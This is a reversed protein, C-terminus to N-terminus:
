SRGRQCSPSCLCFSPSAFSHSYIQLQETGHRFIVHGEELLVREGAVLSGGLFWLNLTLYKVFAINPQEEEHKNQTQPCLVNTRSGCLCTPLTLLESVGERSERSNYEEERAATANRGIRRSLSYM